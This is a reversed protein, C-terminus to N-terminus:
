LVGSIGVWGLGVLSTCYSVMAKDIELHRDDCYRTLAPWLMSLQARTLSVVGERAQPWVFKGRELRKCFLCLGDGDFWILKVLDGRRGRFIFVQGSMPSELKTQVLASLGIYEGRNKPWTPPTKSQQARAQPAGIATLLALGALSKKAPKLLVTVMTRWLVGERIGYQTKLRTALAPNTDGCLVIIINNKKPQLCELQGILRDLQSKQTLNRKLEVFVESSGVFGPMQVYIDTTTGSHRYEPEIKTDANLRQRLFAILSDRYKAETPLVEPQWDQVLKIVSEYASM